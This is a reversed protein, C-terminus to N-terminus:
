SSEVGGSGASWSGSGRLAGVLSLAFIALIVVQSVVCWQCIAGLVVIEFYSLYLTFIVALGSMVSLAVDPRRDTELGPQTGAVALILLALYGAVGIGAVPLGLFESYQSTNVLDCGRSITCSLEGIMGLKALLLYAADLLGLLALVAIVRRRTM